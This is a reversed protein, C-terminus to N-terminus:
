ILKKRKIKKKLRVDNMIKERLEPSSYKERLIEEENAGSM